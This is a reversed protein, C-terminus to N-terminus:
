YAFLVMGRKAKTAKACWSRLAAGIETADVKKDKLPEAATLAALLAAM